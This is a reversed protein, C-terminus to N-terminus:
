VEDHRMFEEENLEELLNQIDQFTREPADQWAAINDNQILEQIRVILQTRKYTPAYCLAIGGLLCFCTAGNPENYNPVVNEGAQNYAYFGKTWKSKDSFLEKLTM